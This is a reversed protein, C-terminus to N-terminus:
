RAREALCGQRRPRRSLRQSDRVGYKVAMPHKWGAGDEYLNVWPVANKEIYGKLADLKTDLSIGVIEFGRDHYKKYNAMVNPAEAICPGCWTAWFDVLVVKGQYDEWNFESGDVLKGSLDIPNGLLNLRRASGAFADAYNKYQPNDVEKLMDSFTQYAEKAMEARGYRELYSALTSANSLETNQLGQQIGIALQRKVLAFTKYQDAESAKNVERVRRVLGVRAAASFQEDSADPNELVANAVKSQAEAIQALATRYEAAMQQQLQTMENIFKLSDDLDSSPERIEGIHILQPSQDSKPEEQALAVSLSFLILLGALKTQAFM